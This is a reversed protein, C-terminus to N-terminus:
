DRFRSAIKMYESLEVAKIKEAISMNSKFKNLEKKFENEVRIIEEDIIAVLDPLGLDIFFLKAEELIEEARNFDGDSLYLRSKIIYQTVLFNYTKSKKMYDFLIKNFAVIENYVEREGYLKLEDLLLDCLDEIVSIFGYKKIFDEPDDGILERFINEAAIKHRLRNSTKNYLAHLYKLKIEMVPFENSLVELEELYQYAEERKGIKMLQTTYTILGRAYVRRYDHKLLNLGELMYKSALD